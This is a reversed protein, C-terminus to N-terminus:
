PSNMVKLISFMTDTSGNGVSKRFPDIDGDEALPLNIVNTEFVATFERNRKVNNSGCVLVSGQNTKFRVGFDERGDFEFPIGDVIVKLFLSKQKFLDM